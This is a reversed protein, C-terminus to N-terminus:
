AAQATPLLMLLRELEGRAAAAGPACDAIERQVVVARAINGEEELLICLAELARLRTAHTRPASQDLDRVVRELLALATARDGISHLVQAIHATLAHTHIHRPGFVRDYSHLTALM